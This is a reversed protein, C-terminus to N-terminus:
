PNHGSVRFVFDGSGDVLQSTYPTQHGGSARTVEWFLFDGLETGTLHGDRNKDADANATTIAKLFSETFISKAPVKQFASGSTIVQVISEAPPLLSDMKEGENKEDPIAHGSFCADLIFLTHKARVYKFAWDQVATMPFAETRFRSEGKSSNVPVDDRSVLYGVYENSGPNRPDRLLTHGHGMFYILLRNESWEGGYTTLFRELAKRLESNKLNSVVEVVGFDKSLAKRMDELYGPVKPLLSPEWFDDDYESMGILLAYSGSYEAYDSGGQALAPMPLAGLVALGVLVALTQFLRQAMM